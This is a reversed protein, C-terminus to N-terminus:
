LLLIPFTEHIIFTTPCLSSLITETKQKPTGGESQSEMLNEPFKLTIEDSICQDLSDAHLLFRMVMEKLPYKVGTFDIEALPGDPVNYLQM